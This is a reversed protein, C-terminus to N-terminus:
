QIKLIYIGGSEPNEFAIKKGDPSVSPSLAIIQTHGTLLYEQGTDPDIAYLDSQTIQHGNDKTLMVVLYKGDPTWCPREGWGLTKLGTGDANMVFLGRTAVQFALKQGNPSIALNFITNSGFDALVEPENKATSAKLFRGGVPFVVPLEAKDIPTGQPAKGSELLQIRGDIVVALHQDRHTWRPLGEIGRQPETLARSLGTAAQILEIWQFRSKNSYESPRVLLTRGDASWSYGFGVGERDSVQWQRQGESTSVWLGQYKESSFALYRGDPSWAPNLWIRGKSPILLEPQGIVVPQASLSTFILTLFIAAPWIILVNKRM